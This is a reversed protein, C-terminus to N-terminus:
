GRPLPKALCHFPQQTNETTKTHLFSGPQPVHKIQDWCGGIRRRGLGASGGEAAMRNRNSEEKLNRNLTKQIHFSLHTHRLPIISQILAPFLIPALFYGNLVHRPPVFHPM